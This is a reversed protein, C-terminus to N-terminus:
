TCTWSGREAASMLPVKMQSLQFWIKSCLHKKCESAGLKVVWISRVLLIFANTHYVETGTFSLVVPNGPRVQASLLSTRARKEAPEERLGEVM